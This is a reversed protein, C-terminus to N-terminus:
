IISDVQVLANFSLGATCHDRRDKSEVIRYISSGVEWLSWLALAGSFLAQKALNNKVMEPTAGKVLGITRGVRTLFGDPRVAAREALLKYTKFGGGLTSAVNLTAGVAHSM